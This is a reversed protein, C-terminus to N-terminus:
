QEHSRRMKSAYLEFGLSQFFRQAQSNFAWVDLEINPIGRNACEEQVRNVLLTGIGKARWSEAVRIQQLYCYERARLFKNGEAQIFEAIVYGTVTKGDTAVWFGGSGIRPRITEVADALSIPVYREPYARVHADQTQLVFSAVAELDDEEAQRIIVDDNAV